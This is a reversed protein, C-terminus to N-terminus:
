KVNVKENIVASTPLGTEKVQVGVNLAASDTPPTVTAPEVKKGCGGLIATALILGVLLVKTKAM